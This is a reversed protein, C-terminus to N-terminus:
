EARRFLPLRMEDDVAEISLRVPLGIRVESPDVGVVNSVIRTGEELEVLAAVLPYEFGPFPPHHMVVYSYVSGRGKSVVADWDTSQCKGCM